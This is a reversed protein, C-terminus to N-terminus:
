AATVLVRAQPNGALGPSNAATAWVRTELFERFAQAQKVTPFDLQVVVYAPDDVPQHIRHETVGADARKGAFQDFAAKWTAFDTIPHEIHLTAM